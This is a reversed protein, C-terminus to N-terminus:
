SHSDLHRVGDAVSLSASISGKGNQVIKEKLATAYFLSIRVQQRLDAYKRASRRRQVVIWLIAALVGLGIALSTWDAVNGRGL